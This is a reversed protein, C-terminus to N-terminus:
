RCYEQIPPTLECVAVPPLKYEWKGRPMRNDASQFYAKTVDYLSRMSLPLECRIGRDTSVVEAFGFLNLLSHWSPEVRVVRSVACLTNFVARHRDLLEVSPIEIKEGQNM